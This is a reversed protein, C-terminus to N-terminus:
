PCSRKANGLYDTMMNLQQNGLQSRHTVIQVKRHQDKPHYIPAHTPSVQEVGNPNQALEGYGRLPVGCAPCYQKIQQAFSEIPQKWWDPTVIFGLDPHNPNGQHLMALSGAIECFFARLEGRFVCIMASWHQNIDCNSILEWMEEEDSIIDQMAVYPPSHRSVDKIGFPNCEPWSSKFDSYATKDLHVNLNSVAPNFTQRMAAGKGLPNNCWLGRQEFPIHDALITCIEAFQPHMAPNGGFVGVVGPYDALSICAKEFQEMSIFDCPGKLNSAQTCGFCAKDCARTLWIQIVGGRWKKPRHQGPPIMRSIAESEKM